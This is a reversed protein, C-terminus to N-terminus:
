AGRSRLWFSLFVSRWVMFLETADIAEPREILRAVTGRLRGIDLYAALPSDGRSLGALVDQHHKVLGLRVESSFDIKDRRWQVKAPLIDQMSRRLLSRTWGDRLIESSPVGVAFSVLQVDYFPFRLEVNALTGARDLAEFAEGVQPTSVNWAHMTAEDAHAQRLKSQWEHYRAGADARAAFAPALFSLSTTSRPATRHGLRMKQALRHLRRGPGYTAFYRLFLGNASEGFLGAAGRLERYLGFWNGGAALESLRGFGHSVVEDGGHGDLLVRTGAGHAAAFLRTMKPLGPAFMLDSQGNALDDLGLLPALDDFGLFIPQVAYADLVAEVYDREDLHPTGPYDFSYTHLSRSPERGLQRAALSVISSSDLGGSLMAGLAPSGRLRSLVADDLRERFIEAASRDTGYEQNTLSWYRRVTLKGQEFTLCHGAPLRHAGRFATLGPDVAFGMLFGAMRVDEIPAGDAVVGALESSFVFRDDYQAYFLPKVGMQDRACFLRGETADWIAFAFDGRLHECCTDSWRLYARLLLQVDSVPTGDVVGLTSILDARNDLRIDGVIRLRADAVDLNHECFGTTDRHAHSLSVNESTWSVQGDPGRQRIARAHKQALDAPISRQRDALIVGAIGSM